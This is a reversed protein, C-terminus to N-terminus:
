ETYMQESLKYMGAIAMPMTFLIGVGCALAGLSSIIGLVLVTLVAMLFNDQFGRWGRKIAAIPDKEGMYVAYLSVPALPALLVGPVVCCIYGIGIAISVLLAVLFSPLFKDFQSFIDGVEPSEGRDSKALAHFYGLLLPGMRLGCVFGNLVVLLLCGIVHFGIHKKLSEFGYSVCVGLNVGNENM